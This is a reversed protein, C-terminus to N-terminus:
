GGCSSRSSGSSPVEGTAAVASSVDAPSRACGAVPGAGDDNHGASVFRDRCRESCFYVTEGGVRATAPAHRREVQMGCVPDSAFASSANARRRRRWLWYLLGFAVLAVVDLASTANWGVGGGAIVTPRATPVWGVLHFLGETALGGVSMVIWFIALIRLAMPRGYQKRYILLLPITVLDGFVFSVVGGFSSGGKWLTAALPVNGISCVFSGMAVLPGVAANELTTWIGHGELFVANWVAVPVLVSIFGAAVFGIVLEKRLMALDSMMFGAADSWGEVSRLRQGLPLRRYGDSGGGQGPAVEDGDRTAAGSHGAGVSAAGASAASVPSAGAAMRRATALARGRFWLTGGGALLVVMVAGGVFQAVLFQWGMLVLLVIGLEIVLNTSALLFVMSAVFDAGSAVLSKAMASAAYSCSSSAAGFLSARAVSPPRHDGLRARVAERSAFAQIAGSLGFGLVLAWLTDWWMSFAEHFGRGIDVLVGPM